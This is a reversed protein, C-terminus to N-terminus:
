LWSGLSRKQLILVVGVTVLALPVHILCLGVAVLLLGADSSDIESVLAKLKAMM